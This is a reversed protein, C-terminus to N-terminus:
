QNQLLWAVAEAETEYFHIISRGTAKLIITAVVRNFRSGGVIAMMGIRPDKNLEVFRKRAAPETREERGAYVIIRLPIEPTANDLHPQLENVLATVDDDTINGIMALRVLGDEGVSFEHAM